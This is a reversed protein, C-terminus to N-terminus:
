LQFLGASTQIFTEWDFKKGHADYIGQTPAEARAAGPATSRLGRAATRAALTRTRLLLSAMM